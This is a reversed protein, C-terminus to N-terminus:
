SINNTLKIGEKTFAKFGGIVEFKPTQSLSPFINM